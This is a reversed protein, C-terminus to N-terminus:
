PAGMPVPAFSPLTLGPHIAEALAELGQIIRPGPRTVVTDDIPRVAHTKVATMGEWGPRAAVIAPTTGYNADGLVIVQPDAAVLRELSISYVGAIGSTIPDGGARRIMDTTFDDPAPTYITKTADLEYFTRPDSGTATAAATIATMESSLTAELATGTAAAGTAEGVLAIDRLVAPVTSAYLVVVPIGLSRIKAIDTTSTIGKWAIVLDPRAAVVKEMEVGTYTAVQPLTKAAPPYDDSSTVGVVKAGEGLAFLTETVSPALSVIRAPLSPITVSTGEDDTLALPFSPAAPSAPAPSPVAPSAPGSAGSASAVAASAPPAASGATATSAPAPSASCAALTLALLLAVAPALPRARARSPFTPTRVPLGPRATLM